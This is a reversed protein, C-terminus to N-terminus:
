DPDDSLIAEVGVVRAFQVEYEYYAVPSGKPEQRVIEYSNYGHHSRYFEIEKRARQETTQGTLAGAVYIKFTYRDPNSSNSDGSVATTPTPPRDGVQACGALMTLLMATLTLAHTTRM